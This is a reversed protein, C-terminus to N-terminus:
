TLALLPKMQKAVQGANSVLDAIELVGNGMATAKSMLYAWLRDSAIGHQRHASSAPHDLDFRVRWETTVLYELSLDPAQANYVMIPAFGTPNFVNSSESWTTLEDVDQEITTFDALEAMNLPYSNIQVGKLALKGASMLRPSQFEIFKDFYDDWTEPRTAIAAQTHMVGAYVIGSTNMLSNPNMIQVTFASPTVTCALGLGNMPMVKTYANNVASIPNTVTHDHVACITSWGGGHTSSPKYKFTGFVNCRAVSQYRRTTRMVLYPGVARPLPLHMPMKADWCRLDTGTTSGFPVNAIAGVGQALVGPAYSRM